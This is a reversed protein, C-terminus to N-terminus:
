ALTSLPAAQYKVWLSRLFLVFAVDPLLTLALPVESILGFAAIPVVLGAAFAILNRESGRSGLFRLVAALYAGQLAVVPVFDVAAPLGVGMGLFEALLVTTYFLAGAVFSVRPGRRPLDSAAHLVNAPVRRAAFVLGHRRPEVRLGAM